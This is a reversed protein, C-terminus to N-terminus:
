KVKRQHANLDQPAQEILLRLLGFNEIIARDLADATLKEPDGHLAENALRKLRSARTDWQLEPLNAEKIQGKEAGWHKALVEEIVARQLALAALPAGFVFAKGAQDLRRYLSARTAGYHRAVHSPVLVHPLARRRWLAGAVDLGCVTKLRDWARLSEDVWDFDDWDDMEQKQFAFDSLQEIQGAEEKAKHKWDAIEDSLPDSPQQDISISDDDALNSILDAFLANWQRNAIETVISRWRDEYDRRALAGAASVNNTFAFRSWDEVIEFGRILQAIEDCLNQLRLNNEWAAELETPSDSVASKLEAFVALFREGEAGKSM